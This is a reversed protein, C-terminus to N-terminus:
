TGLTRDAGARRFAVGNRVVIGDNFCTALRKFELFVEDWSLLYNLIMLFIIAM